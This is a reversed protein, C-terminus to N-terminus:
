LGLSSVYAALADLAVSRGANPTGLSDHPTDTGDLLGSGQFHEVIDIEFDHIEDFNATWHVNGHLHRLTRATLPTAAPRRRAPSFTSSANTPVGDTHCTACSIRREELSMRSGERTPEQM